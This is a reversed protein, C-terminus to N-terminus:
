NTDVITAHNDGGYNSELCDPFEKLEIATAYIVDGKNAQEIQGTQPNFRIYPKKVTCPQTPQM